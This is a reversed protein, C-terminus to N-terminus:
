ARSACRRVRGASDGRMLKGGLFPPNGIVVDADPWDARTGDPNLIADRCEITDLPRLIPNRGAEYGNARMWQIEGIWVSVRALEAAYPNLEIGLVAEPGVAPFARGLGLAEAEVNVRHEIDKLARLGLYLFNGSGCAPDLIRFARLRELFAALRARAAKHAVTAASASKAAKERALAAEIEAKAEAWEALLPEVVVPNVIKMIKDRDTYHAGLQSRKAPDLGREFLTGLISPDIQSWDLRAAAILDLIDARELPLATDDDFLGGNFWDVRTFGVHGGSQMAAFLRAANPAFSAPDARSADLMKQFLKEPLLSVDEAFMCFVLRNVFHAVAQPDHGRAHLRQALDSFQAAAEATLADRTKTPRLRDPDTFAARLLDRKAGDLLDDLLLTHAEQVTNTFNTRIVIRDTDCTVLLPPNELAAAYMLLQRYAADLDKHRGKYEWGFAGKRWVDAWGEGGTAKSAGKEFTFWDGNPDAAVPDDLGLLRCLDNFHTQAASREKLAVPRWKAIFEAPTM